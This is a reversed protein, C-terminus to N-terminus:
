HQKQPSGVATAKSSVSPMCATIESQSTHQRGKVSVASIAPPFMKHISTEASYFLSLLNREAAM